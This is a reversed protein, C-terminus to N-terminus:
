STKDTAVQTGAPNWAVSLVEKDHKYKHIEQDTGVDFVRAFGDDSGTAVQTGAPNWAVSTVPKDHKFSSAAEGREANAIIEQLHKNTTNVINAIQPTAKPGFKSRLPALAKIM